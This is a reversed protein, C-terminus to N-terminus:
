VIQLMSKESIMGSFDIGLATKGSNLSRKSPPPGSRWCNRRASSRSRREAQGKRWAGSAGPSSTAPPTCRRRRTWATARPSRPPWSSSTAEVAARLERTEEELKRLAGDSGEPWVFGAKAAKDEMKEARWLAPLTKAVADIADSASRQAKERRKLAEWNTLVEESNKVKVDSFVHPHRYVLKRCLGDIVDQMTFGGAEAEMQAHFIVQMLVDGLEECLLVNASKQRDEAPTSRSKEEM